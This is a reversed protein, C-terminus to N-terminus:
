WDKLNRGPDDAPEDPIRHARAERVNEVAQALQDQPSGKAPPAPGSGGAGGPGRGSTPNPQGPGENPKPGGDGKETSGDPRKANGGSPEPSEEPRTPAPRAHEEAFRKNEAADERVRDLDAGSATSALCKDYHLIAGTFDGRSLAVNGLGFEIKTRLSPNAIVLSRRYYTEADDFRRLQYCASAADYSPIPSNPASEIAGLFCTLAQDFRGQAYAARGESVLDEPPSAALLLLLAVAAVPRRGRTLVIRSRRPWSAAVVFGLAALLFLGFREGRENSHRAAHEVAAIPEIRTRYLSGLDGSALGLPM